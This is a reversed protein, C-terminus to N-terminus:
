RLVRLLIVFAKKIVEFKNYIFYGFPVLEIHMIKPYFIYKDSFGKKFMNIYYIQDRENVYHNYGWIDFYKFGLEKARKIAEWHALHLVPINNKEPDAAAIYTRVTNGQFVVILGGIINKENDKVIFILGKKNQKFFNFINLITRKLKNENFSIDRALNKKVCVESFLLIDEESNYSNIYHGKEISEKICRRHNRSFSRYIDNISDSLDIYVSSWNARNFFYRIKFEQNLKCEIYDTIAGTPIALQVSLYIFGKEKYYKRIKKISEILSDANKFIPGFDIQAYYHLIKIGKEKIVAFCVIENNEKAYFYCIKDNDGIIKGWKPYQEITSLELSNFFFEIETLEKETLNNKFFYEM